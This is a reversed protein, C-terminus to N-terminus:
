DIGFVKLLIYKSVSVSAKKAKDQLLEKQEKSLYIVVTEEKKENKDLKPRGKPNLSKKKAQGRGSTIFDDLNETEKKESVDTVDEVFAFSSKKEKPTDEKKKFVSMRKGKIIQTNLLSM